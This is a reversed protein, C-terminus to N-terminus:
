AQVAPPEPHRDADVADRSEGLVAPEPPREADAVGDDPHRAEDPSTGGHLLVRVAGLSALVCQPPDLGDSSRHGGRETSAEGETHVAVHLLSALDLDTVDHSEQAM